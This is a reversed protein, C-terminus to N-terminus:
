AAAAAAAAVDSRSVFDELAVAGAARAGGAFARALLAVRSAIRGSLALLDGLLVPAPEGGTGAGAGSGGGAGAGAGAGARPAGLAQQLQLARAPAAHVTDLADEWGFRPRAGAPVASAAGSRRLWACAADLRLGTGVGATAAAVSASAASGCADGLRVVAGGAADADAAAVAAARWSAHAPPPALGRRLLRLLEQSFGDALALGVEDDQGAAYSNQGRLSSAVVVVGPVHFLGGEPDPGADGSEGGRDGGGGGGGGGLLQAAWAPWTASGADAGADAATLNALGDAVSEAQCTDALLLVEDFRRQAAADALAAALDSYSLEEADQFKLFGDGGHGTLLLLLRARAPAPPLSLRRSAPTGARHRGTLARLLADPSCDAGAYDVQADPPLVSFLRAGAGAGAAAGAAARRAARPAEEDAFLRGAHAANRADCAHPEALFLLINRDPVGRLRLQSYLALANASHRYNFWFRSASVLVAFLEPPAPPAAAAAAPAPLPAALRPLTALVLALLRLRPSQM